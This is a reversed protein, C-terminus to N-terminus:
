LRPRGAPKGRELWREKQERRVGEDVARYRALYDEAFADFQGAEIAARMRETLRM